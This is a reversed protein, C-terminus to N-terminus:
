FLVFCVFVGILTWVTTAQLQPVRFRRHAVAPGLPQLVVSGGVGCLRTSQLAASVDHIGRAATSVQVHGVSVNSDAVRRLEVGADKGSKVGIQLHPSNLRDVKM